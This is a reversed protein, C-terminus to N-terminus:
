FGAMEQNWRCNHVDTSGQVREQADHLQKLIIDGVRLVVGDEVQVHKCLTQGFALGPFVRVRVPRIGNFDELYLAGSRGGCM